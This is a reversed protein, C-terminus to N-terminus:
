EIASGFKAALYARRDEERGSKRYKKRLKDVKQSGTRGDFSSLNGSGSSSLKPPERPERTSALLSKLDDTTETATKPKPKQAANFADWVIGIWRADILQGREEESLGKSKLYADVEQRKETYDPINKKVINVQRSAWFSIERERQEQAAKHTKRLKDRKERLELIAEARDPDERTLRRLDSDSVDWEGMAAAEPGEQFYRGIYDALDSDTKIRAILDVHPMLQDHVESLQQTKQTYDKLRLGRDRAEKLDMTEGDGLDLKVSGLLQDVTVGAAKAIAEIGEAPAGGDDDDDDGDLEDPGDDLDTDDDDIGDGEAKEPKPADAKPKPAAAIPDAGEDDPFMTALASALLSSKPAAGPQAAGAPPEGAAPTHAEIAM